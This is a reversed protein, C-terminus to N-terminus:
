QQAEELQFLRAHGAECEHVVNLVSRHTSLLCSIEVIQGEWDHTGHLAQASLGCM